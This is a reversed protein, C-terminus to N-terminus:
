CLSLVAPPSNKRPNPWSPIETSSGSRHQGVPMEATSDLYYCSAIKSNNICLGAIGGVLGTGGSKSVSGQNHCYKVEAKDGHGVVGGAYAQTVSDGNVTGTNYCNHVIFSLLSLPCCM